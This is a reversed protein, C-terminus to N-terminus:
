YNRADVDFSVVKKPRTETKISKLSNNRKIKVLGFFNSNNKSSTGDEIKHIIEGKIKDYLKDFFSPSANRHEDRAADDSNVFTGRHLPSRRLSSRNNNRLNFSGESHQRPVQKNEERGQAAFLASQNRPIRRQPDTNGGM